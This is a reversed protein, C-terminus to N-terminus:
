RRGHRTPPPTARPARTPRTWTSWPGLPCRTPSRFRPRWATASPSRCRPWPERLVEYAHGVEGADNHLYAAAQGGVAVGIARLTPTALSVKGGQYIFPPAVGDHLALGVAFGGGYLEAWLDLQAPLRIQRPDSVPREAASV